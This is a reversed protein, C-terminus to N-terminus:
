KKRQKTRKAPISGAEKLKLPETDELSMLRSKIEKHQVIIVTKAVSDIVMPLDLHVVVEPTVGNVMRDQGVTGIFPIKNHYGFVREGGAYKPKYAIRDFYDALNGM